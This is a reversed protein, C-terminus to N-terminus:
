VVSDLLVILAILRDQSNLAHQGNTVAEKVANLFIQPVLLM